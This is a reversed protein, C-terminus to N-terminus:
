DLFAENVDLGLERAIARLDDDSITNLFADSGGNAARAALYIGAAKEITHMLGFAEDFSAGSCFMGHLAWVAADCNKMLDSTARAIAASGPVMWPVVGVGQPFVMICETMAKWLARTIERADLPMVATLAAINPPHAHYLVRNAGGTADRRVEHILVHSSFESTPRGGDTLGWVIRWADGADNLEVVGVSRKPDLPVNRLYRGAGTVTFFSGGLSEARVDMPMWVSPRGELLSLCLEADEASMRYSLNGGNREHWGQDWGDACLRIFREMFPLREVANAHDVAAARDADHEVPADHAVTADNKVAYEAAAEGQGDASHNVAAGHEAARGLSSGLFGSAEERMEQVEHVRREGDRKEM